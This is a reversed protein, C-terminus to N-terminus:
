KLIRWLPFACPLQVALRDRVLLNGKWSGMRNELRTSLRHPRQQHSDRLTDRFQCGMLHQLHHGRLWEGSIGDSGPAPLHAVVKEVPYQLVLAATKGNSLQVCCVRNSVSRALSVPLFCWQGRIRRVFRENDDKDGDRRATEDRQAGPCRQRRRAEECVPVEGGPDGPPNGIAVTPATVWAMRASRTLEGNRSTHRRRCRQM